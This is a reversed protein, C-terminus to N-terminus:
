NLSMKYIKIACKDQIIIIQPSRPLVGIGSVRNQQLNEAPM